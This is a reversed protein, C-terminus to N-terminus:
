IRDLLRLPKPFHNKVTDNVRKGLGLPFEEACVICWGNGDKGDGCFMAGAKEGTESSGGTEGTNLRITEGRLYSKAQERSLVVKRRADKGFAAALAHAPKFLKGDWTGLETGLRILNGIDPMGEPVLYMRGDPLTSFNGEIPTLFFDRAFAKFAKEAEGNRKLPYQRAASKEGSERQLLACYHGEGRFTHPYLKHEELLTFEPHRSLFLSIQEEDEEESFTCTSYVLRGGGAVTEAACDLIERQRAACLRVNRESWHLLAEPEKRFMGEGSCPADVLVLDFFAPFRDSFYEPSACTVACNTIGMREVNQSLIKARSPEIENAILIGEGKMQMALCVTKGGPAACLDLVREKKCSKTLEGVSMASPEQLYYLGAFHYVDAGPKKEEIYRCAPDGFVPDGLPFPARRAFDTPSIKLTNVRLARQPPLEYSSLFAPYRDGLREKM